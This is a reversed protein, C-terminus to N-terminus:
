QKLYRGATIREINALDDYSAINEYLEEQFIARVKEGQHLGHELVLVANPKLHNKAQRIIQRIDTLGDFGSALAIRPEHVVDGKSLHEDQNEIYPPNSVLLDFMEGQLCDFWNSQKFSINSVGLTKSNEIAVKLASESKDVALLQCLPREKAISIAIAGSGTGLDAIRYKENLSINDLVFEVLHETEPRPILTDTTVKFDLSWFERLGVIYAVPEGDSRRNILEDIRMKDAESVLKDPWIYLQTRSFNLAHATLVEADLRASDFIPALRRTGHELVQSITLLRM